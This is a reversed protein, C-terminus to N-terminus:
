LDRQLELDDYRRSLERVRQLVRQTADKYFLLWHLVLDLICFLVVGLNKLWAAAMSIVIVKEHQFWGYHNDTWSQECDISSKMPDPVQTYTVQGAHNNSNGLCDFLQLAHCKSWWRDDTKTSTKANSKTPILLTRSSDEQLWIWSVTCARYSPRTTRPLKIKKKKKIKNNTRGLINMTDIM